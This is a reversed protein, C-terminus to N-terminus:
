SRIAAPREVDGVAEAANRSAPSSLEIQAEYLDHRSSREDLKM